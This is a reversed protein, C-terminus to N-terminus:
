MEEEEEEMMEEEMVEEMEEGEDMDMEEEEMEYDDYDDYDDEEEDGMSDLAGGMLTEKDFAVKWAGNEKLLIIEMSDGDETYSVTAKDGDIQENTVAIEKTEKIDDLGEMTAYMTEMQGLFEQSKETANKKATKFDGDQLANLFKEAVESPTASSGGGSCSYILIPLAMLLIAFLRNKITSM